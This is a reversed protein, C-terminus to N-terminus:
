VETEKRGKAMRRLKIRIEKEKTRLVDDTMISKKLERKRRM